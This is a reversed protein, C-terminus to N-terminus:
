LPLLANPRYLHSVVGSFKAKRSCSVNLVASFSWTDLIFLRAHVPSVAAASLDVPGLSKLSLYSLTILWPHTM